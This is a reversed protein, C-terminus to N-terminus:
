LSIKDQTWDKRRQNHLTGWTKIELQQNEMLHFFSSKNEISTIAKLILFTYSNM